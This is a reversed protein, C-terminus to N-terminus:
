EPLRRTALYQLFVRQASPALGTANKAEVWRFTEFEAVFRVAETVDKRLRFACPEQEFALLDDVSTGAILEDLM